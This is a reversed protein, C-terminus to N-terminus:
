WFGPAGGRPPLDSIRVESFLRPSSTIFPGKPIPGTGGPGLGGGGSCTCVGNRAVPAGDGCNIHSCAGRLKDNTGEGVIVSGCGCTGQATLGTVDRPGCDYAFCQKQVGSVAEFAGLCRAWGATKPNDPELNDIVGPQREFMELEQQSEQQEFCRLTQMVASSMATCNNGGCEPTDPPCRKQQDPNSIEKERHEKEKQQALLYKVDAKRMEQMARDFLEKVTELVDQEEEAKTRLVQVELAEPGGLALAAEYAESAEKAQAEQYELWEWAKEAKDQALEAQLRTYEVMWRLFELEQREWEKEKLDGMGASIQCNKGLRVGAFLAQQLEKTAKDVPNSCLGMAEAMCRMTKEGPRVIQQSMCRVVDSAWNRGLGTVGNGCLRGGNGGGRGGSVEQNCLTAGVVEKSFGAQSLQRAYSGVAQPTGTSPARERRAPGLSSQKAESCISGAYLYGQETVGREIMEAFSCDHKGLNERSVVSALLMGLHVDNEDQPNATVRYGVLRGSRRDYLWLGQWMAPVRKTEAGMILWEYNETFWRALPSQPGRYKEVDYFLLMPALAAQAVYPVLRELGNLRLFGRLEVFSWYLHSALQASQQAGLCASQRALDALAQVAGAERDEGDEFLTDFYRALLQDGIIDGKCDPDDELGPVQTHLSQMCRRRLLVNWHLLATRVLLPDVERGYEEAAAAVYLGTLKENVPLDAVFLEREGELLALQDGASPEVRDMSALQDDVMVLLASARREQEVLAAYARKLNDAAVRAEIHGPEAPQRDGAAEGGKRRAQGADAVVAGALLGFASVLAQWAPQPEALWRSFDDFLHNM